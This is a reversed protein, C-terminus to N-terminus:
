ELVRPRPPPLPCFKQVQQEGEPAKDQFEELSRFPKNLASWQAHYRDNLMSTTAAAILKEGRTKYNSAFEELPTPGLLGEEEALFDSM